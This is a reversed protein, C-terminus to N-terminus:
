CSRNKTYGQSAKKDRLRKFMKVRKEVSGKNMPMSYGEDQQEKETEQKKM